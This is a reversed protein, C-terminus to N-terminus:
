LSKAVSGSPGPLHPAVTDDDSFSGLAARKITVQEGNSVFGDDDLVTWTQGSDLVITSHGAQNAAMSVIRGSEQKPGVVAVHRQLASLGFSNADDPSAAAAAPSATAAAPSPTAVSTAAPAVPAPLAVSAPPTANLSAAPASAVEPVRHALADYCALRTGPSAISACRSLDNGSVTAANAAVSLLVLGFSTRIAHRAHIM